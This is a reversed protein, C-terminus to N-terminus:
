YSNLMGAIICFWYQECFRRSLSKLCMKIHAIDAYWDLMWMEQKKNSFLNCCNDLKHYSDLCINLSACFEKRLNVVANCQLRDISVLFIIYDVVDILGVVIIGVLCMDPSGCNVLCWSYEFYEIIWKKWVNWVM